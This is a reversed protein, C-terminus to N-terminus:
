LHFQEYRLRMALQLDKPMLTVRRGHLSCISADHLLGVLFAETAEQLAELASCRFRLEPKEYHAAIARILRSFPQRPILLTATKQLMRIERLAAAGPRFKRAARAASATTAPRMVGRTAPTQKAIASRAKRSALAHEPSVTAPERVAARQPSSHVSSTQQTQLNIRSSSASRQQTAPQEDFDFPSSIRAQRRSPPQTAPAGAAMATAFNVRMHVGGSSFVILDGQGKMMSEFDKWARDVQANTARHSWRYQESVDRPVADALYVRPSTRTSLPGHLFGTEAPPMCLVWASSNTEPPPLHPPRRASGAAASRSSAALSQGRLGPAVPSRHATSKSRAM